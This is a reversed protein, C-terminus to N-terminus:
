ISKLIQQVLASSQGFSVFYIDLGARQFKKLNKTIADFIWAPQNGFAGGGVLTLFLHTNRTRQKNAIAALFTAEYTADLILRAFAEWKEAAIASYAVPLASCYVQTVKHQGNSLTVQTDKQIGIKLLGKLAEYAEADLDRIQESIAALGPESALAYGNQMRWHKAVPNNFYAGIESLCDIQNEETQGIQGNVKVFYNRFITGAGCAIACAPGQTKDREYRGVGQEPRVTPGVMELLNFQSAAQFTAGANETLEHFRQVDGVVERLQNEAEPYGKVTARLEKLTPLELAGVDFSQNNVNSILRGEKLKLHSRVQTPSEEEFGVLQEFWSPM